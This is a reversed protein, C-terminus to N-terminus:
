PLFDFWDLEWPSSDFGSPANCPMEIPRENKVVLYYPGTGPLTVTVESPTAACGLAIPASYGDASVLNAVAYSFTRTGCVVRHSLRLKTAGAQAGLGVVARYSALSGPSPVSLTLLGAATSTSYGTGVIANAPPAATMTRDVIAGAPALVTFAGKAGDYSRGLVDRVGTLDVALAGPLWARGAPPGVSIKGDTDVSSSFVNTPQVSITKLTTEDVPAIVSVTLASTPLIEGGGTSMSPARAPATACVWARSTVLSLVDSSLDTNRNTTVVADIGDDPGVLLGAFGNGCQDRGGLGTASSLDPLLTSRITSFGGTFLLHNIVIVPAGAVRGQPFFIADTNGLEAGFPAKGSLPEPCHRVNADPASDAEIAGDGPADGDAASADPAADGGDAGAAGGGVVAGGSGVLGGSGGASSMGGSGGAGPTVAGAGGSMGGAGSSANPGGAGAAGDSSATSSCALGLSMAFLCAAVPTRSHIKVTKM